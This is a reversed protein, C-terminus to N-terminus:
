PRRDDSQGSSWALLQAIHPGDAAFLADLATFHNAGAIEVPDIPMGRDRWCAAFDLSQRRFEASEAGGVAVTLPARVLPELDIPSLALVERTALQLAPQLYSFPFPRLDFLGSLAVAGRVLDAPLGYEGPWDTAMAMAVLHGGASHGSLTLRAPDGGFQAINAHTWAIAARTQRVIETLSVSPCLAYNVIVATIGRAVLPEAVWAFDRASFRRWYGGHVFLHVPAADGASFIDLHEALTPGYRVDLRGGLHALATTSRAQWEAMLGAADAVTRSPDYEADLAAQDAFDRYLRRM